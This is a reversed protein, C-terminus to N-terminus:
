FRRKFIVSAILIAIIVLIGTYGPTKTTIEKEPPTTKEPKITTSTPKTTILTTVVTSSPTKETPSPQTTPYCIKTVKASSTKVQANMDKVSASTTKVTVNVDATKVTTSITKVVADSSGVINSGRINGNEDLKLIWADWDGAGFSKTRGAVIYGGDRTQQIAYVWDEDNSGYTKQWKINGNEDLKLIWADGGGAGFSKTHGVVIYGGDRTQQIASASDYDNGGYTKQWQINGSRDLKLIWADYDGAGFSKTRGAVIYGGDRTQQITSASDYDNGGYTKQWEINGNKDLKLIWADHCSRGVVIYGEDSTQKVDFAMDRCNHHVGYYVRGYAKQWEINGNEDLKLIWVDEGYEAGFSKTRGAVIYGGDRTQQINPTYDRNSGGYTKQWQINGNEDLKLIWADWDGAGFSKTGGAVIYGGDDTQKVDSVIDSKNGGYVVAWSQTACAPTSLLAIVFVLALCISIRDM